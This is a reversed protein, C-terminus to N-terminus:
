RHNDKFARKATPSWDQGLDRREKSLRDKELLLETEEQDDLTNNQLKRTVEDLSGQLLTSLIKNVSEEFVLHGRGLEAPDALLKGLVRAAEPVMGEPPHTLDHDALLAEFVARYRVDVFDRPGLREGAREIWDRDKTMLLLLLREPGM